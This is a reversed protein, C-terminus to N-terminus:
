AAKEQDLAQFLRFGSGPAQRAALDIKAFPCFVRRAPFDLFFEADLDLQGPEGTNRLGDVLAITPVPDRRNIRRPNDGTFWAHHLRFLM